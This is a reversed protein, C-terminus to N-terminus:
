CARRRGDRGDRTKSGAQEGLESESGVICVSKLMGGARECQGRVPVSVFEALLNADVHKAHVAM